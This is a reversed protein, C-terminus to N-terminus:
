LCSSCLKSVKRHYRHREQDAHCERCDSSGPRRENLGCSHCPLHDKRAKPNGGLRASRRAANEQSTVWELNSLDNNMGDGDLHDVEHDPSPRPPGFLELVLVHVLFSRYRGKNWLQVRYYPYSSASSYTNKLQASRPGAVVGTSTVSYGPWGAILKSEM